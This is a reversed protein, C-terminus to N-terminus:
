ENSTWLLMLDGSLLKIQYGVVPDLTDFDSGPLVGLTPHLTCTDWGQPTKSNNWRNVFKVDTGPNLSSLSDVVPESNILPLGFINVIGNGVVTKNVHRIGNVTLVALAPHIYAEGEAGASNGFDLDHFIVGDGDGDHGRWFTASNDTANVLSTVDFTQLDFNMSGAVDDDGWEAGYQNNGDDGLQNPLHYYPSHNVLTPIVNFYLFDNEPDGTYTNGSALHVTTLKAQRGGCTEASANFATGNFWATTNDVYYTHGTANNYHLNYNGDNVWYNTLYGCGDSDNYACVLVTRMIRGNFVTSRVDVRNTGSKVGSTQDFGAFITGCSSGWTDSHADYTGNYFRHQWQGENFSVNIWGVEDPNGGWAYVYVRTWVPIATDPLTHNTTYNCPPNKTFGEDNNDGVGTYVGGYVTGTSSTTLPFGDFAYDAAAPLGFVAILLLLAIVITQKRM